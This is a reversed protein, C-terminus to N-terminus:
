DTKSVTKERGKELIAKKRAVYARFGKDTGILWDIALTRGYCANSAMHHYDHHHASPFWPLQYGTHNYLGRVHVFVYWIWLTVLHPNILMPGLAVPITNLFYETKTSYAFVIAIPAPWEHHKKHVRAYLKPHHMVRHLYYLAIEDIVMIILFEILIRQASPLDYMDPMTNTLKKVYYSIFFLPNSIFWQNIMVVKITEVLRYLDLPENTGPQVKYKRLWKPWNFYDIFIFIGGITWFPIQIVLICGWVYLYYDNDGFLKLIRKWLSDFAVSSAFCFQSWHATLTQECVIYVLFLISTLLIPGRWKTLQEM